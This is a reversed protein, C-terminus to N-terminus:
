AWTTFRQAVLACSAGTLAFAMGLPQGLTGLDGAFVFPLGAAGAGALAWAVPLRFAANGIALGHVFWAGVINPVISVIFGFLVAVFLGGIAGGIENIEVGSASYTEPPAAAWIALAYCAVFAPGAALSALMAGRGYNGRKV